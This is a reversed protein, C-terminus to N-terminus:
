AAQQFPPVSRVDAIFYASVRFYWRMTGSIYSFLGRPFRGTILITIYAFMQFVM